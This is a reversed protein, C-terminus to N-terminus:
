RYMPFSKGSFGKVCCAKLWRRMSEILKEWNMTNLRRKLNRYGDGYIPDQDEAMMKLLYEGQPSLSRLLVMAKGLNCFGEKEQQTM